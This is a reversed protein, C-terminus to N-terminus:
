RALLYPSDCVLFAMGLVTALNCPLIGQEPVVFMLISTLIACAAMVGVMWQAAWTRVVLRNENTTVSGTAVTSTPETLSQKVHIGALQCYWSTAVQRLTDHEHLSAPTMNRTRKLQQRMADEAHVDCHLRAGSVNVIINKQREDYDPHGATTAELSADM